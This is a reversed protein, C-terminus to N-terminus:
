EGVRVVLVCDGQIAETCSAYLTPVTGGSADTPPPPYICWVPSAGEFKERASLQWFFTARCKVAVLGPGDQEDM